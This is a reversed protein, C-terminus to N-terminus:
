SPQFRLRWGVLVAVVLGVLDARALSAQGALAEGVLGAATILPARWVYPAPGPPWSLRAGGGTSSSPPAAPAAWVAPPRPWRSPEPPSLSLGRLLPGPFGM